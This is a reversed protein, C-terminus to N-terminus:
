YPNHYFYLGHYFYHGHYHGEDGHVYVFALAQNSSVLLSSATLLVVAPITVTSLPMILRSNMLTHISRVSVPVKFWHDLEIFLSRTIELQLILLACVFIDNSEFYIPTLL